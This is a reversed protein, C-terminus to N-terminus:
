KGGGKGCTKWKRYYCSKACEGDLRPCRLYEADAHKVSEPRHRGVKHVSFCTARRDVHFVAAELTSFGGRGWEHLTPYYVAYHMTSM